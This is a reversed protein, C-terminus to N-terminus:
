AAARGMSLLTLPKSMAAGLAPALSALLSVLVIAGAGSMIIGWPPQLTADVGIIYRLRKHLRHRIPVISDTLIKM